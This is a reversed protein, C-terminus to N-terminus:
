NDIPRNTAAFEQFNGPTPILLIQKNKLTIKLEDIGKQLNEIDAKLRNLMARHEKQELEHADVKKQVEISWNLLEPLKHLVDITKRAEANMMILIFILSIMLPSSKVERAVRWMVGATTTPDTEHQKIPENKAMM